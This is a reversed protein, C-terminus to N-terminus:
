TFRGPELRCYEFEFPVVLNNAVNANRTLIVVLREAGIKDGGRLKAAIQEFLAAEGKVDGLWEALLTRDAPPRPVGALRRVTKRLASGAKAFRAAAVKLEGRKVEARVGKLIRQNAETNAKCIPEVTERYSDRSVEGAAASGAGLFLALLGVFVLMRGSRHRVSTHRGAKIRM